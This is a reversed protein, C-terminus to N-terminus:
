KKSSLFENFEGKTSEFTFESELKWYNNKDSVNDYAWKAFEIKTSEFSLWNVIQKAQETSIFRNKLVSQLLKLKDTDTMRDVVRTHLDNFDQANMCVPPMSNNNWNGQHNNFNNSGGGYNNQNSHGYSDNNHSNYYVDDNSNYRDDNPDYRDDNRNDNERFHDNRDWDYVYSDNYGRNLRRNNIRALGSRRDIIISSFVGPQLNINGEYVLVNRQEGNSWRYVRLYHRGSPFNRITIVANEENYFRRDIAVSIPSNDTLRVKLFSRPMQAFAFPFSLLAILLTLIIKKM